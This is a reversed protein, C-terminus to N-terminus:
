NSRGAFLQALPGFSTSAELTAVAQMVAGVNLSGAPGALMKFKGELESSSMPDEPSGKRFLVTTEFTQGRSRVVMRCGVRCRGREADIM